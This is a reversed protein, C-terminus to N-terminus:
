DPPLLDQYSISNNNNSIQNADINNSITTSYTISSALPDTTDTSDSLRKRVNLKPSHSNDVGGSITRHLNSRNSSLSTTKACKTSLRVSRRTETTITRNISSYNTYRGSSLTTLTSSQSTDNISSTSSRNNINNEPNNTAM